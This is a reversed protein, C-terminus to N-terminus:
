GQLPIWIEPEPLRRLIFPFHIFADRDRPDSNYGGDTDALFGEPIGQNGSPAPDARDSM